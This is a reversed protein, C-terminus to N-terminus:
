FRDEREFAEFPNYSGVTENVHDWASVRRPQEQVPIVGGEFTKGMEM